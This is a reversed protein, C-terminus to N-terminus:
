QYRKVYEKHNAVEKQEQLRATQYANEDVVQTMLYEWYKDEMEKETQDNKIEEKSEEDIRYDDAESPLIIEKYDVDRINDATAHWLSEQIWHISRSNKIKYTNYRHFSSYTGLLEEEVQEYNIEGNQSRNHFICADILVTLSSLEKRRYKYDSTYDYRHWLKKNSPTDLFFTNYYDPDVNIFINGKIYRKQQKRAELEKLVINRKVKVATDPNECIFNIHTANKNAFEILETLQSYELSEPITVILRDCSYKKQAVVENYFEKITQKRKGLEKGSGSYFCRINDYDLEKIGPKIMFLYYKPKDDSCHIDRGLKLWYPFSMINGWSNNNKRFKLLAKSPDSRTIEYDRLKEELRSIQVLLDIAKKIDKRASMKYKKSYLPHKVRLEEYHEQLLQSIVYCYGDQEVKEKRGDGIYYWERWNDPDNLIDKIISIPSKENNDLDQKLLIDCYKTLLDQFTKSTKREKYIRCMKKAIERNTKQEEDYEDRDYPSTVIVKIGERTTHKKILEKYQRKNAEIHRKINQIKKDCVECIKKEMEQIYANYDSYDNQDIGYIRRKKEMVIRKTEEEKERQLKERTIKEKLKQKEQEIQMLIKNTIVYNETNKISPLLQTTKSDSIFLQSPNSFVINLNPTEAVRKVKETIISAIDNTFIPIKINRFNLSPLNHVTILNKKKDYSFQLSEDYISSSLVINSPTQLSSEIEWCYFFISDKIEKDYSKYKAERHYDNEIEQNVEQKYSDLTQYQANELLM